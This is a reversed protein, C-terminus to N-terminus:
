FMVHLIYNANLSVMGYRLIGPITRYMCFNNIALRIKKLNQIINVIFMFSIHLPMNKNNNGM